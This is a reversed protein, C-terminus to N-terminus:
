HLGLRVIGWAGSIWMAAFLALSTAFAASRKAPNRQYAMAYWVRALVWATGWAAAARDSGFMANVWMAPLTIAATELTNMQIRYAREFLEHGTIAPAKIGYLGRARGVHIGTGLMLLCFLLTVLATLPYNAM